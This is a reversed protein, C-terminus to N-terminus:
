NEVNKRREIEKLIANKLELYQPNISPMKMKDFKPHKGAEERRQEAEIFDHIYKELVWLDQEALPTGAYHTHAHLDIPNDTM